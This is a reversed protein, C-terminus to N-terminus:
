GGSVYVRLREAGDWGSPDRRAGCPPAPRSAGPGPMGWPAFGEQRQGNTIRLSGPTGLERWARSEGDTLV